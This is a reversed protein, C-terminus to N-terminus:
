QDEFLEIRLQSWQGDTQIFDHRISLSIAPGSSPNGLPIARNDLIIRGARGGFALLFDRQLGADDPIGYSIWIVSLDEATQLDSLTRVEPTKMPPMALM